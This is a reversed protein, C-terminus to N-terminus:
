PASGGLLRSGTCDEGRPTSFELPMPLPIAANGTKWLFSYRILFGGTGLATGGDRVPHCRASDVGRLSLFAEEGPGLDFARFPRLLRPLRGSEPQPGAMYWRAHVPLVDWPEVGTVRVTFPGSNVLSVGADFPKGQRFDAFM